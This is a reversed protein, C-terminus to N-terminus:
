YIQYHNEKTTQFVKLIGKQDVKFNILQKQYSESLDLLEVQINTEDNRDSM